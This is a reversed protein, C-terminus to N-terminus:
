KCLREKKNKTCIKNINFHVIIRYILSYGKISCDNGVLDLIMHEMYGIFIGGWVYYTSFKFYISLLLFILLYEYGHFIVGITGKEAFYEGSFFRKLTPRERHQVCFLFYEFCHDIDFMFNAICCSFSFIIKKTVAFVLLGSVIGCPIHIKPSM